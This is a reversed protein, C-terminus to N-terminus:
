PVENSSVDALDLSYCVTLFKTVSEGEGRSSIRIKMEGLEPAAVVGLREPAEGRGLPVGEDRGEQDLGALPQEVLDHGHVVLVHGPQPPNPPLPPLLREM